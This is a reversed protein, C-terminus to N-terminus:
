ELGPGWGGGEGALLKASGKPARFLTRQDRHRGQLAQPLGLSGPWGRPADKPFLVSFQFSHESAEAREIRPKGGREERLRGRHSGAGNRKM